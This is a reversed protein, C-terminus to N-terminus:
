PCEGGRTQWQPRGTEDQTSRLHLRNDAASYSKVFADILLKTRLYNVLLLILAKFSLGKNKLGIFTNLRCSYFIIILSFIIVAAAICSLFDIMFWSLCLRCFASLM